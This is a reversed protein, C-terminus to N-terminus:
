DGFHFVVEGEGIMGLEKRAIKEIYRYDDELLDIEEKLHQNAEILSRNYEVISDREKTLYYLRLLGREGFLASVIVIIAFLLLIYRSYRRRKKVAVQRIM